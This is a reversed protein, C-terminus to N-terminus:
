DTRHRDAHASIIWQPDDITVGMKIYYEVLKKVCPVSKNTAVKSELLRVIDDSLDINKKM